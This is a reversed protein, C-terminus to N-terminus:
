SGIGLGAFSAFPYVQEVYVAIPKKILVKATPDVDDGYQVWLYDWGRKQIGSIGGVSMGDQNPSAAFKYTIEYRDDPDTGRRAGSAGMFLVGVQRGEGDTNSESAELWRVGSSPVFVALRARVFLLGKSTKV